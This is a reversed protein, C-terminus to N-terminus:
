KSGSGETVVRAKIYGGVPPLVDLRVMPVYDSRVVLAAYSDGTHTWTIWTHDSKIPHLAQVTPQIYWNDYARAYVIVRYDPDVKGTVKGAIDARTHDGGPERPPITTLEIFVDPEAPAAAQLRKALDVNFNVDTETRAVVRDGRWVEVSIRDHPVGEAFRFLTSPEPSEQPSCTGSVAFWRYRLGGLSGSVLADVQLQLAERNAAARTQLQVRVADRDACGGLLFGAFLLVIPRLFSFRKSM